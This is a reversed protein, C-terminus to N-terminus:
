MLLIGTIPPHNSLSSSSRLARFWATSKEFPQHCGGTPGRATKSESVACISRLNPKSDNTETVSGSSIAAPRSTWRGRAAGRAGGPARRHRDLPGNGEVFPEEMEANVIQRRRRRALPIRSERRHRLPAAVLAQAVKEPRQVRAPRQDDEIMRQPIERADAFVRVRPPQALEEVCVRRADVCQFDVC